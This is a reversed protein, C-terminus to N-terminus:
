KHRNQRVLAGLRRARLKEMSLVGAGTNSIVEDDKQEVDASSQLTKGGVEWIDRKKKIEVKKKKEGKEVRDSGAVELKVALGYHDSLYDGAHGEVFRNGMLGFRTVTLAGGRIYCRDFRAKFRFGDNGHYSNAFSDWTFKTMPDSGSCKWADIWGGGAAGEIRSDEAARANFDGLLICDDAGHQSMLSMLTTCQALRESAGDKFPTLHSSSVAITAGNILEIRCAVSPLNDWETIITTAMPRKRRQFNITDVGDDVRTTMAAASTTSMSTLGERVLLDVYGCHSLRTGM